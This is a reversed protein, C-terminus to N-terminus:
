HLVTFKRTLVGDPTKVRVFYLGGSVKRGYDDVGPWIAWGQAAFITSADLQRVPEGLLNFVQVQASAVPKFRFTVKDNVRLDYPNPYAFVGSAPAPAVPTETYTMTVTFTPSITPTASHTTTITATPTVTPTATRTTIAAAAPAPVPTVVGPTLTLSSPHAALVFAALPTISTNVAFGSANYGYYFQISEGSALSSVDVKAEQGSYTYSAVQSAKSPQVYFNSASPASLGSPFTFILRGNTWPVGATYTWIASNGTSPHILPNGISISWNGSGPTPTPTASPTATPSASPTGTPTYTDTGAAPAWSALGLSLLLPLVLRFRM